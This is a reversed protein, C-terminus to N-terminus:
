PNWQQKFLTAGNSRITKLKTLHSAKYQRLEPDWMQKTKRQLKVPFWISKRVLQLFLLPLQCSNVAKQKTQRLCSVKQFSIAARQKKRYCHLRHFFVYACFPEATIRASTKPCLSNHKWQRQETGWTWPALNHLSIRRWVYRSLIRKWFFNNTKAFTITNCLGLGTNISHYVHVIVKHVIKIWRLTSCGSILM